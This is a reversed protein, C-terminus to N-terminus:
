RWTVIDGAGDFVVGSGLGQDTQIQVVAPAVTKVVAVYQQELAVAPSLARTAGSTITQARSNPRAGSSCGAGLAAVVVM